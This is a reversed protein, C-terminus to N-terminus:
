RFSTVWYKVKKLSGKLRPMSELADKWIDLNKEFKLRTQSKTWRVWYMPVSDTSLSNKYSADGALFDYTNINPKSANHLVAYYHSVLGPRYVNEDAYNFGCQYFLIDGRYAFCYLYGLTTKGNEIQLLQIEGHQFRDQILRKHFQYLYKNAFAGSKGKKTWEAQHAAVLGDFMSLAQDLNVAEHIVIPGDLEYQKVSRRIQSRKNSSLFKLFDMGAERIKRLDVFHANSVEDVLLHLGPLGDDNLINFDSVFSSSAGPVAFEDWSLTSLYRVFEAKLWPSSSTYLISNYELYLQDFYPDGTTNLSAIWTPLIGHKLRRKRGVFFAMIAENQHYGVVLEIRSDAPLSKIWTSIWGWSTFYSHLCTKTLDLWIKEVTEFDSFPNYTRFAVQAATDKSNIM